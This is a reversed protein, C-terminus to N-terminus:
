EFNGLTISIRENNQNTYDIINDSIDLSSNGKNFDMRTFSDILSGYGITFISFLNSLSGGSVIGCNIDHHIEQFETSGVYIPLSWNKFDNSQLLHLGFTKNYQLYAGYNGMYSVVNTVIIPLYYTGSVGVFNGFSIRRDVQSNMDIIEKDEFINLGDTEIMHLGDGSPNNGGIHLIRDINDIRKALISKRSCYKKNDLQTALYNIMDTSQYIDSSYLKTAGWSGNNSISWIIDRNTMYSTLENPYIGSAYQVKSTAYLQSDSTAVIDDFEISGGSIIAQSGGFTIGDSTFKRYINVTSTGPHEAYDNFYLVATDGNIFIDLPAETSQLITSTGQINCSQFLSGPDTNNPMLISLIRDKFVYVQRLSDHIEGSGYVTSSSGVYNLGEQMTVRLSPTNIQLKPQQNFSSSGITYM